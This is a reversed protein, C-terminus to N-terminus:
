SKEENLAEIASLEAEVELEIEASPVHVARLRAILTRSFYPFKEIVEAQRQNAETLQQVQTRLTEIECLKCPLKMGKEWHGKDCYNSM